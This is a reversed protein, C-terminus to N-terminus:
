EVITINDLSAVDIGFKEANKRSIYGQHDTKSPYIPALSGVQKGELIQYILQATNVGVQYYSVGFSGLVLHKKVADSDANFVPLGMKNAESAIAALSPQITGSVGVYIFDVKGKLAQMNLAVERAHEVPISIVEMGYSQAAQEMMKVLAADNAEGTAYLLGIRKAQPLVKKAFQLFVILDQKDSAGSMNQYPQGNPHILGADIPDTVDAFIIPINKVSNKAAQAVPTSIAVLVEPNSAKLKALMQMILTPEFNVDLTEFVFDQNERLGLQSLEDEIGRITDQLSSHPGWNAIAIIPLSSASPTLVLFASVLAVLSLAIIFLKKITYSMIADENYISYFMLHIRNPQALAM